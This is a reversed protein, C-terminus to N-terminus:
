MNKINNIIEATNDTIINRAKIRYKEYNKLSIMEKYFNLLQDKPVGLYLLIKLAYDYSINFCWDDRQFIKKLTKIKNEDKDDYNSLKKEFLKKVIDYEDM